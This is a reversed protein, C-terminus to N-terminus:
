STANLLTITPNLIVRVFVRLCFDRLWAAVGLEILGVRIFREAQSKAVCTCVIEKAQNGISQGCAYVFYFYLVCLFCMCVCVHSICICVRVVLRACM